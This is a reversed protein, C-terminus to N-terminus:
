ISGDPNRIFVSINTSGKIFETIEQVVSMDVENDSAYMFGMVAYAVLAIIMSVGTTYIMHKIHDFLTAGAM